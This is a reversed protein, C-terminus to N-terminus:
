KARFVTIYYIRVAGSKAVVKITVLQQAGQAVLVTKSSVASSNIYIKESSVAKKPTITVKSQQTSLLLCYSSETKSFKPYLVGCSTKLGSLYNNSSPRSVTIKYIKTSSKDKATVKFTITKSGGVGISVRVASAKRNNILLAAAPDAKHPTITVTKGASSDPLMLGYNVISSAFTPSLTGVTTEIGSLDSSPKSTNTITSDLSNKTSISYPHGYYSLYSLVKEDSSKESNDETYWFNFQYNDELELASMVGAASAIPMCSMSMSIIISISLLITVIVKSRM